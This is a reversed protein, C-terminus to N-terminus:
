RNMGVQMVGAQMVEFLKSDRYYSRLTLSPIQQTLSSRQLGSMNISASLPTMPRLQEPSSPKTKSAIKFGVKPATSGSDQRKLQKAEAVIPKFATSRGAGLELSGKNANGQNVAKGETGLYGAEPKKNWDAPGRLLNAKGEM